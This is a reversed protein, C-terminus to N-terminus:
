EFLKKVSISFGPLLDNATLSGDPGPYDAQDAGARYVSVTQSRPNVLWIEQVGLDLYLAVKRLVNALRDTPSLVEVVLPPIITFPRERWDPTTAKFADVDAKRLLMIDPQLTGEVWNSSEMDLKIFTTEQYVKWTANSVLFSHFALFLLQILESHGSVTPSMYVVEGDIIEFPGDEQQMFEELSMGKRTTAQVM